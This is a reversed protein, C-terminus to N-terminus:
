WPDGWDDDWDSSKKAAVQANVRPLRVYWSSLFPLCWFRVKKSRSALSGGGSPRINAVATKSDGDSSWQQGGGSGWMDERFFSDGDGVKASSKATNSYAAPPDLSTSRLLDSLDRPDREESGIKRETEGVAAKREGGEISGATSREGGGSLLDSIDNSYIEEDGPNSSQSATRGVSRAAVSATEAVKGLLWSSTSGVISAATGLGAGVSSASPLAEISTAIYAAGSSGRSSSSGRHCCGDSGVGGLRGNLGGSTGFKARMRAAAEERLRHQRAVYEAESEGALAEVGQSDGMRLRLPPSPFPPPTTTPFERRDDTM